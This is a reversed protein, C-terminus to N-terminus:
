AEVVEARKGPNYNGIMGPLVIEFVTGAGDGALCDIRGGMREVALRAKYLGLGFREPANTGKVFLDFLSERIEQPIGPGNDKIQIRLHSGEKRGTLHVPLPSGKGFTVANVLVEKVAIKLLYLDMTGVIGASVDLKIEASELHPDGEVDEIVAEMADRIDVKIPKPDHYRIIGLECVSLNQQNLQDLTRDILGLVAEAPMAETKALGLLGMLKTIPTRLDHSTRYLLDNLETNVNALAVTREEIKIELGANIRKIEEQQAHLLRNTKQKDRYALVAVVVLILLLGIGVAMLNQVSRQRSIELENFENEKNLLAIKAQKQENQYKGEIDAMAAARKENFYSQILKTYAEQHFFAKEWQQTASYAQALNSHINVLGSATQHEIAMGYAEESYKLATEFDDRKLYMGGINNLIFATSSYDNMQRTIAVGREYYRLANEFEGKDNYILAINNLCAQTCHDDKVAVALDLAIFYHYLASDSKEAYDMYNGLGLITWAIDISDKEPDLLELAETDYQLSLESNGNELYITAIQHKTKGMASSDGVSEYYRLANFGVRLGSNYYGKNMYARILKYEVDAKLDAAAVKEAKNLAQKLLELAQDPNKTKLKDAERVIESIETKLGETQLQDTQQGADVSQGMGYHSFLGAFLVPLMFRLLIEKM